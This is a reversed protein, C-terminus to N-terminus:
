AAKIKAKEIWNEAKMCGSCTYIWSKKKNEVVKIMTGKLKGNEEIIEENCIACKKSSM